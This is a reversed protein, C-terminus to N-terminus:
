GFLVLPKDKIGESCSVRERPYSDCNSAEGVLHLLNHIPENNYRGLHFAGAHIIPIVDWASEPMRRAQIAVGKQFASSPITAWDSNSLGTITYVKLFWTTESQLPPFLAKHVAGKALVTILFDKDM